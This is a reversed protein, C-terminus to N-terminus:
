SVTVVQGRTWLGTQEDILGEHAKCCTSSSHLAPVPSSLIDGVQHLASLARYAHVACAHHRTALVVEGTSLLSHNRQDAKRGNNDCSHDEILYIRENWSWRMPQLEKSMDDTVSVSVWLHVRTKSWSHKLQRNESKFSYGFHLLNTFPTIKCRGFYASEHLITHHECCM